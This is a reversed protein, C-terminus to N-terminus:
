PSITSTASFTSKRREAKWSISSSATRACANAWIIFTPRGRCTIRRMTRFEGPASFLYLFVALYPFFFLAMVWAVTGQSTRGNMIADFIFVIGVIHLILPILLMWYEIVLKIDPM